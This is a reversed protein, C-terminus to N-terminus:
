TRNRDLKALEVAARLDIEALVEKLGPDDIGEISDKSLSALRHLDDTLIRGELMGIKLEDLADLLRQGRRVARRKRGLPDEVSQLALMADLGALDAVPRASRAEAAGDSFDLTFREGTGPARAPGSSRPGNIRNNGDIRMSM